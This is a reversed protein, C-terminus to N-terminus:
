QWVRFSHAKEKEPIQGDPWKGTALVSQWEDDTFNPYIYKEKPQKIMWLEKTDTRHKWMSGDPNFRVSFCGNDGALPKPWIYHSFKKSKYYKQIYGENWEIHHYPGAGGNPKEPIRNYFDVEILHARESYQGQCQDGAISISKIMKWEANLTAPARQPHLHMDSGYQGLTDIMNALEHEFFERGLYQDNQFYIAYKTDCIKFLDTTGFGLGSNNKNLILKDVLGQAYFNGVYSQDGGNSLMIVQHEFKTFQKISKLAINTENPRNYDLVLYSIKM